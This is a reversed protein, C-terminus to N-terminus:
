ESVYAPSSLKDPIRTATALCLTRLNHAQQVQSLRGHTNPATSYQASYNDAMTPQLRQDAHQNGTSTVIKMSNIMFLTYNVKPNIVSPNQFQPSAATHRVACGQVSQANLSRVIIPDTSHWEHNWKCHTAQSGATHRSAAKTIAIGIRFDVVIDVHDSVDDWHLRANYLSSANSNGGAPGGFTPPCSPRRTNATVGFHLKSQLTTSGHM